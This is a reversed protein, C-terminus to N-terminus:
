DIQMVLSKLNHRLLRLRRSFSLRGIPPVGVLPGTPEEIQIKRARCSALGQKTVLGRSTSEALILANAKTVYLNKPHDLNSVHLDMEKASRISPLSLFFSRLRSVRVIQHLWFQNNTNVGFSSLGSFRVKSRTIDPYDILSRDRTFLFGDIQTSEAGEICIDFADQLFSKNLRLPFKDDICWYVFSDGNMGELLTLVTAAIEPPSPILTVRKKDARADIKRNEQYPVLFQFPHDPWLAQYALIMNETFPRYSDKTLVIAPLNSNM